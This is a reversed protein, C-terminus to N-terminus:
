RGPPPPLPGGSRPPQGSPQTGSGNEPLGPPQIAKARFCSVSYPFDQTMVYHYTKVTQGDVTVDSTIGHCEDLDGTTLYNKDGVKPGTIPFGDLAYGIITSVSTDKICRSLTHYHYEGKNQPHGDCGDQVEWAGADRGGADFANFIAVGTLMVGVEGGMCNPGGPSPNATLAYTLSQASIHGPNRDYQYAPDSAAVPFTGTYHNPLDNTTIVRQGNVVKISLSPTWSIHGDVAAKKNIDWQTNNNTFWPGRAQAGAQSAPVFNNKCLYVYGQKAGTTTYHNDGVPLLGKAYKDGYNKAKLDIGSAATVASVSPSPSAHTGTVSAKPAAVFSMYAWAGGAVALVLATAGLVITLRSHEPHVVPTVPALVSEPVPAAAAPEPAPVPDPQPEEPM